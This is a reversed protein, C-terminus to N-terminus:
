VHRMHCLEYYFMSNEQMRFLMQSTGLIVFLLNVDERLIRSFNSMQKRQMAKNENLLRCIISSCISMKKCHKTRLLFGAFKEYWDKPFKSDRNSDKGNKPILNSDGNCICM